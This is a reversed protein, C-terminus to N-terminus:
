ETGPNTFAAQIEAAQADLQDRDARLPAGSHLGFRAGDGSFRPIVHLHVHPVVQGAARGDAMYYGIAQAPITSRRLATGLKRGLSFVRASLDEDVEELFAAHANPIVLLHGPVIPFLDMFASVHEDQHILSAEADGAAIQCFLCTSRSEM